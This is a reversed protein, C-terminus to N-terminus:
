EEESQKTKLICNDGGFNIVRLCLTCIIRSKNEGGYLTSCKVTQIPRESKFDKRQM